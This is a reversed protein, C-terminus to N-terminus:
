YHYLQAHLKLIIRMQKDQNRTKLDKIKMRDTKWFLM